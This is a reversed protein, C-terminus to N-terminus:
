PAEQAANQDGPVDQGIKAGWPRRPEIRAEWPRKPGLAGQPRRPGQKRSVKEGKDARRRMFVFGLM